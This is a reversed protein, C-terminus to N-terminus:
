YENQSIRHNGGLNNTYNLTPPSLQLPIPSHM